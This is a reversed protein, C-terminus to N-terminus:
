SGIGYGSLFSARRLAAPLSDSAKEPEPNVITTQYYVGLKSGSDVPAVYQRYRSAVGAASTGVPNVTAGEGTMATAFNLGAVKTRAKNSMRTVADVVVGSNADIGAAVGAPIWVGVEDRMVKSPSAIGLAATAAQSVMSALEAIKAALAGLMSEIGAILGQVIQAGASFLLGSLDGIASVVQGPIAGVIGLLEGIVGTVGAVMSQFFGVIASIPGSLSSLVGSIAGVAGSIAGTIAGWVATVVAQFATFAASVVALIPAIIPALVGTIWTIFAQAAAQIQMWGLRAMAFFFTFVASVLAMTATIVPVVFTQLWTIFPQIAALIGTFFGSIGALIGTFFGSIGTAAGQVGTTVGTFFGSITAWASSIFGVIAGIVTSITNSITISAEIGWAVFGIVAGITAGLAQIMLGAYAGLWAIVPGAADAAAKFGDAVKTWTESNADIATTISEIAPGISDSISQIASSVGDRFDQSSQYALYFVGALAAIGAVVAAIPGLAASLGGAAAAGGAAGGGGLIGTLGGLGIIAGIGRAIGGLLMLVPGAAAALAAIQVITGQTEKPLAAFQDALEKIKDVLPTAADLADNLAPLLSEGLSYGVDRLKNKFIDFQAATTEYRKAAEDALATNTDWAESAIGLSQALIDGGGAMRLLADRVRIDNAGITELAGIVNGGEDQIKQLGEVFTVIAQAPDAEFAAAFEQASTGAIAAFSELTAGGEMVAAQMNLMVRSIATGGAEAEIGLSSLAAAFGMVEAETMGVQNGAGAIRMAMTVIEAETAAMKNGLDVVTSGLEDFQDQPMQMINAFRALADAAEDASLNTTEGLDIMTKSFELIADKQIGLQGAAEAVAAIEEASAPMQTAMQKIGDELVQFEAETADVTKRVGAFATEFEVAAMISAAGIGVIPLTLGVTLGRGIQSLNEAAGTWAAKSKSISQGVNRSIQQGMAAGAAAGARNGAQVASAQIQAAMRSTNATVVVTLQGVVTM